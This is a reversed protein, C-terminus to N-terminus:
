CNVVIHLRAKPNLRLDTVINGDCLNPQHCEMDFTGDKRPALNKAAMYCDPAWAYVPVVAIWQPNVGDETVIGQEYAERASLVIRPRNALKPHHDLIKEPDDEYYGTDSYALYPNLREPIKPM